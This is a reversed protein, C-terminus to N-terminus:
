TKGNIMIWIDCFQQSEIYSSHSFTTIDILYFTTSFASQIGVSGNLARIWEKTKQLFQAVSFMSFVYKILIM